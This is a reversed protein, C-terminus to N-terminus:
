GKARVALLSGVDYVVPIGLRTAEAIEDAVGSSITGSRNKLAIVFVAAPKGELLRLLDLSRRKYQADTLPIQSALGELLDGAPNITCIELDMLQRSYTSMRACSALYDAPYSSMPGALYVYFPPETM